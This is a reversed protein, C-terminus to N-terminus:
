LFISVPKMTRLPSQLNICKQAMLGWIREDLQFEAITSM